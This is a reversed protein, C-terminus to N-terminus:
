SATLVRLNKLESLSAPLDTLNNDFVNLTELKSLSGVSSPVGSFFFSFFYTLFDSISCDDLLIHEGAIKNGGLHLNM